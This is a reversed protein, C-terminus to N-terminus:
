LASRLAAVAETDHSSVLRDVSGIRDRLRAVSEYCAAVDVHTGPPVYDVDRVTVRRKEGSADRVWERDPHLNHQNYALDGVLGYDGETTEVVVSQHGETHGPTFLLECGPRLDVDGNVATVQREDLEALAGARYASALIPLPDSAADLERQQVVFEAAPFLKVNATHDHHLHTLVVIDVDAPEYGLDALGSVLPESGGGPPGVQRGRDRMYDTDTAVVGTDVLVLTNGTDPVLVFVYVPFEFTVDRDVRYTLASKTATLTGCLIPHITYVLWTVHSLM